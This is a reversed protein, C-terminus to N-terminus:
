FQFSTLSSRVLGLECILFRLSRLFLHSALWLPWSPPAGDSRAEPPHGAWGRSHGVRVVGNALPLAPTLSVELKSTMKEM